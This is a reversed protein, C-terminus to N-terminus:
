EFNVFRNYLVDVNSFSVKEVVFEFLQNVIDEDANLLDSDLCRPKGDECLRVYLKNTISSLYFNLGRYCSNYCAPRSFEWKVIGEITDELLKQVIENEQSM